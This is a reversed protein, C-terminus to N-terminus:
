VLRWELGLDAIVLTVKPLDNRWAAEAEESTPCSNRDQRCGPFGGPCGLQSPSQFSFSLFLSVQKQSQGLPKFGTFEVSQIVSAPRSGQANWLPWVATEETVKELSLYRNNSNGPTRSHLAAGLRCTARPLFVGLQTTQAPGGCPGWLSHQPGERGEARVM